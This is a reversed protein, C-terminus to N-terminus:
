ITEINDPTFQLAEAAAAILDDISAFKRGHWDFAAKKKEFIDHRWIINGRDNTGYKVDKVLITKDQTEKTWLRVKIFNSDDM